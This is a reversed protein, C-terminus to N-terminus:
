VTGSMKFGGFPVEVPTINYNNIFCSGAELQEVLRHARTMDRGQSSVLLWVWQLTIPERCFRRSEKKAQEVFSLVKDLHPRNVLAGMRTSELLPDGITIAHTRKVVEEVFEPLIDK